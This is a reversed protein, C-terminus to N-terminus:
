QEISALWAYLREAVAAKPGLNLTTDGALLWVCGDECPGELEFLAGQEPEDNDNSM